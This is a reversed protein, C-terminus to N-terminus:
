WFWERVCGTRGPTVTGRDAPSYRRSPCASVPIVETPMRCLLGQLVFPRLWVMKIMELQQQQDIQRWIITAENIVSNVENKLIATADNQSRTISLLNTEIIEEVKEEM